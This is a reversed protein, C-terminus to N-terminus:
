ENGFVKRIHCVHSATRSCSPHRYGGHRHGGHHSWRDVRKEVMGFQMGDDGGASSAGPYRGDAAQPKIRVLPTVFPTEDAREELGRM